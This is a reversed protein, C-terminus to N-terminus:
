SRRAPPRVQRQTSVRSIAVAKLRYYTKRPANVDMPNAEMYGGHAGAAADGSWRHIAHFRLGWGSETLSPALARRGHYAPVCAPQGPPRWGGQLILNATRRSATGTMPRKPGLAIRAANTPVYGGRWHPIAVNVLSRASATVAGAGSASPPATQALAPPGARDDALTSMTAISSSSRSSGVAVPPAKSPSRSRTRAPCANSRGVM